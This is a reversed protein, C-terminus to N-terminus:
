TVLMLFHSCCRGYKWGKRIHFKQAMYVNKYHCCFIHLFTVVTSKKWLKTNPLVVTVQIGIWLPSTWFIIMFSERKIDSSSHKKNSVGNRYELRMPRGLALCCMQRATIDSISVFISIYANVSHDGFCFAGFYSVIWIKLRYM